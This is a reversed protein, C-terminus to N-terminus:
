TYRQKAECEPRVQPEDIDGAPSRNRRAQHLPLLHSNFLMTEPRFAGPFAGDVAGMLQSDQLKGCDSFEGNIWGARPITSVEDVEEEDDADRGSFSVETPELHGTDPNEVFIIKEGLLVCRM